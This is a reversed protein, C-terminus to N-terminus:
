IFYFRGQAFSACTMICLGLVNAVIKPTDVDHGPQDLNGSTADKQHSEMWWALRELFGDSSVGGVHLGENMERYVRVAM